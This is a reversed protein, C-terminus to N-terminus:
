PGSSAPIRPRHEPTAYSLGQCMGNLSESFRKLSDTLRKHRQELAIFARETRERVFRENALESRANKLQLEQEGIRRHLEVLRDHMYEQSREGSM